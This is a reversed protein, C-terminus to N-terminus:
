SHDTRQDHNSPNRETPNLHQWTAAAALLLIYLTGATAFIIGDFTALGLLTSM